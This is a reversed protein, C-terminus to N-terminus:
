VCRRSGLKRGPGGPKGSARQRTSCNRRRQSGPAPPRSYVLPGLSM